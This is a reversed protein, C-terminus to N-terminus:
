SYGPGKPRKLSPSHLCRESCRFSKTHYIARFIAVLTGAGEYKHGQTIGKRQAHASSISKSRVFLIHCFYHSMAESIPNHFSQAKQTPHKSGREREQIVSASPSWSGHVQCDQPSATHDPISSSLLSERRPHLRRILSCGRGVAQACSKFCRLWPCGAPICEM